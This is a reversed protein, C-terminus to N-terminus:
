AYDTFSPPRTARRGIRWAGDQSHVVLTSRSGFLGRRREVEYDGGLYAVVVGALRDLAIRVDEKDDAVTAIFTSRHPEIFRAEQWEPSTLLYAVHGSAGQLRAHASWGDATLWQIEVDDSVARNIVGELLARRDSHSLM